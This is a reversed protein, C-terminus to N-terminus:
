LFGLLRRLPPGGAGGYYVPGADNSTSVVAGGAGVGGSSSSGSSSGFISGSSSSDFPSPSSGLLLGANGVPQAPAAANATNAFATNLQQTISSIPAPGAPGKYPLLLALWLCLICASTM